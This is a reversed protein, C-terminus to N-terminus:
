KGESFSLHITSYIAKDVQAVIMALRDQEMTILMGKRPKPIGMTKHSLQIKWPAFREDMNHLPTYSLTFGNLGSTFFLARFSPNGESYLEKHVACLGDKYANVRKKVCSPLNNCDYALLRQCAVQQEFSLNKSAKIKIACYVAQTTKRIEEYKLASNETTCSMAGLKSNRNTLNTLSRVQNWDSLSMEYRIEPNNQSLQSLIIKVDESSVNIVGLFYQLNSAIKKPVAIDIKLVTKGKMYEGEYAPIIIIDNM